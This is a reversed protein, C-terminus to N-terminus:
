NELKKLLTNITIRDVGASEFHIEDEFEKLHCIGIGEIPDNIFNTGLSIRYNFDEINAIGKQSNSIIQIASKYKRYSEELILEGVIGGMSEDIGLLKVTGIKDDDIYVELDIILKLKKRNGSVSL